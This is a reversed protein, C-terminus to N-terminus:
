TAVPPTSAPQVRLPAAPAETVLRGEEHARNGRATAEAEREAERAAVLKAEEERQKAQAARRVREEKVWKVARATLIRLRVWTWHGAKALYIGAIHAGRMSANVFAVFLPKPQWTRPHWTVGPTTATWQSWAYRVRVIPNLAAWGRPTTDVVVEEPRVFAEWNAAPADTETPPALQPGALWDEFRRLSRVDNQQPLSTTQVALVRDVAPYLALRRALLVDTFKRDGVVLIRLPEPEEASPVHKVVVPEADVKVPEDEYKPQNAPEDRRHQAAVMRQELSRGDRKVLPGCLPGREVTWRWTNLLDDTASDEEQAAAVATATVLDRRTRPPGLRGEYYAVVDGACAPKPQRHALVPANLSLSLAEAGIGGRDKASGASNSVVLVRGPFATLLSTWGATYPPYM